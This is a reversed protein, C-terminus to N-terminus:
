PGEVTGGRPLAAAERFVRERRITWPDQHRQSSDTLVYCPSPWDRSDCRPGRDTTLHYADEGEIPYVVSPRLSTSPPKHFKARGFSRRWSVM